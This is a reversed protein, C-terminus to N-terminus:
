SLENDPTDYETIYTSVNLRDLVSTTSLVAFFSVTLLVWAAVALTSLAAVILLCVLIVITFFPNLYIMLLANLFAGWLNPKEMHFFIPWLYFQVVVLLIIATIWVGRMFNTLTDTQQSYAILNTLNIGIVIINLIAVGVGRKLNDRFGQWYDDLSVGRDRHATYSLRVLGAWAAPITIIPISCIIFLLNGWIYLYGRHNIHRVARGIVKFGAVV